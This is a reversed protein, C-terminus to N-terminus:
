EAILDSVTKKAIHNDIALQIRIGDLLNDKNGLKGKDDISL